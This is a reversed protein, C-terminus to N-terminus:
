GLNRQASSSAKCEKVQSAIISERDAPFFQIRNCFNCNATQCLCIDTFQRHEPNFSLSDKRWLALAKNHSDAELDVYGGIIWKGKIPMPRNEIYTVDASYVRITPTQDAPLGEAVLVTHDPLMEALESAHSELDADIQECMYIVARWEEIWLKPAIEYEESLYMRAVTCGLAVFFAHWTAELHSTAQFTYIVNNAGVYRFWKM